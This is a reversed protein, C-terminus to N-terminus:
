KAQRWFHTHGKYLSIDLPRIRNPASDCNNSSNEAQSTGKRVQVLRFWLPEGRLGCLARLNKLLNEKREERTQRNLFNKCLFLFRKSLAFLDRSLWPNQTYGNPSVSVPFRHFVEAGRVLGAPKSELSSNNCIRTSQVSMGSIDMSEFGPRGQFRFRPKSIM